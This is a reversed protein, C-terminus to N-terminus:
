NLKRIIEVGNVTADWFITLASLYWKLIPVVNISTQNGVKIISIRGHKKFAIVNTLAISQQTFISNNLVADFKRENHKLAVVLDFSKTDLTQHLYTLSRKHRLISSFNQSILFSIPPGIVTVEKIQSCRLHSIKNSSFFLKQFYNKKYCQM